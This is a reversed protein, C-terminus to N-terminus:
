TEILYKNIYAPISIFSVSDCIRLTIFFVKLSFLILFLPDATNIYSLYSAIPSPNLINKPISTLIGGVPCPLHAIIVGISEVFPDTVHIFKPGGNHLLLFSLNDIIYLDSAFDTPM